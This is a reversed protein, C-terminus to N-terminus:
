CSTYEGNTQPSFAYWDSNMRPLDSLVKAQVPTMYDFKMEQLAQLLAPDVKGQLTSFSPANAARLTESTYLAASTSMNVFLATAPVSARRYFPSSNRTFARFALM